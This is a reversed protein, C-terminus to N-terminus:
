DKKKRGATKMSRPGGLVLFAIALAPVVLLLIKQLSGQPSKTAIDLIKLYEKPSASILTEGTYKSIALGWWLTSEVFHTVFILLWSMVTIDTVAFTLRQLGLTLIYASYLLRATYDTAILQPLLPNEKMSDAADDTWFKYIAFFEFVGLAFAIAKIIKLRTPLSEM